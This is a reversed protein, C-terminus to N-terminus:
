LNRVRLTAREDRTMRGEGPRLYGTPYVMSTKLIYGESDLHQHKLSGCRLCVLTRVFGKGERHATRPSWSHQLDRCVLQNEDPQWTSGTKFRRKPM